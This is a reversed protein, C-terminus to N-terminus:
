GPLTSVSKLWYTFAGIERIFLDATETFGTDLPAMRERQLEFGYVNRFLQRFRLYPLLNSYLSESIVPPRIGDLDLVMDQLLAQHWQDTNPIGGNLERDIRTFVHEIGTYFDHLLSAKTRLKIWDAIEDPLSHYEEIVKKISEVEREIEKRIRVLAAIDRNM